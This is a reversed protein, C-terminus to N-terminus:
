KRIIVFYHPQMICGSFQENSMIRTALPRKEKKISTQINKKSYFDDKIFKIKLKPNIKNILARLYDFSHINFYSFSNPNGKKDFEELPKVNTEKWWNSNYVLQIRYSVDYIVTRLIITKKTVRILEKLPKEISPLRLLVNSCITIEFKNNKFPLNYINGQKFSVNSYNKWAIKAKDLLIKYPDIGTYFFNVDIERKLSRYFHGCACGVDLVKYNKKVIKKLIKAIAKSTEMEPTKGIARNYYTRVNVKNAEEKHQGFKNLKKM